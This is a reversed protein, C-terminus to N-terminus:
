PTAPAAADGEGEEGADTRVMLPGGIVAPPFTGVHYNHCTTCSDGALEPVHCDACVQREIPTFNAQFTAPDRDEFGKLYQAQSNLVHCDTCGRVGSLNFHSVHSFDTFRHEQPNLQMGQWNVRLRGDARLDTSHCKGCNGPAGADALADFPAMAWADRAARAAAFDLWGALLPDAHGLPRYLLQYYEVYWGGLKAWDPDDVAGEPPSPEEPEEIDPLPDGARHAAVEALLDPFWRLQLSRVADVPLTGALTAMDRDSLPIGAVAELRKRLAEHGETILDVLLAKFAWAVAAAAEAEEDSAAALDLLDTDAEDLVQRAAVYDPDAALLLRMFPTAVDEAYEPWYGIDVDKDQLSLVDIGPVALVPVGRGVVQPEHCAGCVQEFDRVVMGLGLTDPAHCSSCEGPANGVVAPDRFHRSIHSAHDFVLRTRRDYPFNEFEPHGRSLSDFPATHCAQCRVNSMGTLDAQAGHHEQHCTSCAVGDGAAFPRGLMRNAIKLVTPATAPASPAQASARLDALTAADQHHPFVSEVGMRHCTLCLQSDTQRVPTAVAMGLWDLPSHRVATHCSSCDSGFEAHPATLGGQSVAQFDHSGGFLILLLGVTVAALWRATLGRRARLSRVPACPVPRLGCAGDALPGQDCRGGAGEPRTCVWRDGNRAPVCQLHIRCDGHEGPGLLCPRGAAARGCVWKQFPRHYPSDRFGFSQFFRKVM